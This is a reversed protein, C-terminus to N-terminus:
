VVEGEFAAELAAIDIKRMKLMAQSVRRAADRDKDGMLAILRRPIIQWSLGWRDKCWGCMSQAGGDATLADWLRDTEAQDETHIQFSIAETFPFQPGGNLGIFKSGALTFEVVMVAGEKMSPNDSPAHVVNGIQSDPLLSTYFRAAQEAQGDFWLCTTLGDAMTM